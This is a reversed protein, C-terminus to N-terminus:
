SRIEAVGSRRNASLSFGRPPAEEEARSNRNECKSNQRKKKEAAETSRHQFFVDWIKVREGNERKGKVDSDASEASTECVLM